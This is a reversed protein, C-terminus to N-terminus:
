PLDELHTALLLHGTQHRDPPPPARVKPVRGLTAEAAEIDGRIVLTKYEIIALNLSYCSVGWEKDILYV